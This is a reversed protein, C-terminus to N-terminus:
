FLFEFIRTLLGPKVHRDIPGKGIVEIQADAVSGSAITNDSEVDEPRIMGSFRITQTDENVRLARDGRIVLQGGTKVEVVRCTITSILRSSRTTSGSGRHATSGGLTAKPVLKLIGWLGTGGDARADLKKQVDTDADQVATTSETILVTIIDGVVRAKRASFM